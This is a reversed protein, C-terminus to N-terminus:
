PGTFLTFTLVASYTGSHASVPVHVSVPGNITTDGLGHGVSASAVTHASGYGGTPTTCDPNEAAGATSVQTYPPVSGLGLVAPAFGFACAGFTDTAPLDTFPTLSASVHWGDDNDRLDRVTVEDISGGAAYFQATPDLTGTGLNINCNQGPVGLFPKDPYPGGTAGSCAEGIVLQGAPKTVTFTQTVSGFNSLPMVGPVPGLASPVDGGAYHAVVTFQYVTGNTLGTVTCSLGTTNCPTGGSPTPNVTYGTPSGSAASWLVTIQANGPQAGTIHAPTPGPTVTVPASAPGTTGNATHAAVTFTYPTFDTLGAVHFTTGATPTNVPPAAPSTQTVVYHDITSGGTSTPATWSLDASSEGPTANLGTPATLPGAFNLNFHLYNDTSAGSTSERLVLQCPHTSDCTITSQTVGDQLTFTQTGEGVHFNLSATQNPPATAVTPHLDGAGLATLVCNGSQFPSYDTLNQIDASGACERAEVGFISNGTTSNVTIAINQGDTLNPITTIPSASYNFTQAPSGTVASTTTPAVQPVPDASAMGSLLPLSAAMLAVFAAFV